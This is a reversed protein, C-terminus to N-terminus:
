LYMKRIMDVDSGSLTGNSHTGGLGDSFLAADFEYLMISDPDYPTAAM